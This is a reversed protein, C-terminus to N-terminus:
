YRKNRPTLVIAKSINELYYLICIKKAKILSISASSTTKPFSIETYSYLKVILLFFV